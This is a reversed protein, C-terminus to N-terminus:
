YITWYSMKQNVKRHNNECSIYKVYKIISTHHSQTQQILIFTYHSLSMQETYKTAPSLIVNKQLFIKKTAKTAKRHM